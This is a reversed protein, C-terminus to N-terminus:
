SILSKAFEVGAPTLKGTATLVGPDNRHPDFIKIGDFYFHEELEHMEFYRLTNYLMKMLLDDSLDRYLTPGPINLDTMEGTVVDKVNVVLTIRVESFDPRGYSQQL